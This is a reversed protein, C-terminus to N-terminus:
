GNGAVYISLNAQVKDKNTVALMVTGNEFVWFGSSGYEATQRYTIPQGHKTKLYEFVVPFFENADELSPFTLTYFGNQFVSDKCSYLVAADRGLFSVQYSYDDKESGDVRENGLEREYMEISDCAEGIKAGRFEVAFSASCYLTLSFMYILKIIRNM